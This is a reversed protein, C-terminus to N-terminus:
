NKQAILSVIIINTEDITLFECRKHEFETEKENPFEFIMQFTSVGAIKEWFRCIKM